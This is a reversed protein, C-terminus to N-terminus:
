GMPVLWLSEEIGFIRDSMSVMTERMERISNRCRSIGREIRDLSAHLEPLIANAQDVLREFEAQEEPPLNEFEDILEGSSVGLLAALEEAAARDEASLITRRVEM